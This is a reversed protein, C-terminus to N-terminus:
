SPWGAGGGPEDRVLEEGAFEDGAVSRLQDIHRALGAVSREVLLAAADLQVDLYTAI